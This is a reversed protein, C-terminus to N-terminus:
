QDAERSMVVTGNATGFIAKQSSVDARQVTVQGVREGENVFRVDGNGNAAGGANAGATSRGVVVSPKGDWLDVALLHADQAPAAAAASAANAKALRARAAQAQGSGVARRPGRSQAATTSSAAGGTLRVAIEAVDHELKGIRDLIEAEVPNAQPSSLEARGQSLTPSSATASLATALAPQTSQPSANLASAAAPVATVSAQARSADAPATPTAQANAAASVRAVPDISSLVERPPVPITQHSDVPEVLGGVLASHRHQRMALFGGAAILVLAAIAWRGGKRAAPPRATSRSRQAAPQQAPRQSAPPPSPADARADERTDARTGSRAAPRSPTAAAVTTTLTPEVRVANALGASSAPAKASAIAEASELAAATTATAAASESAISATSSSGAARDSPSRAPELTAPLSM